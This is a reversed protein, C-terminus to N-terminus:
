QGKVISLSVLNVDVGVDCDLNATGANNVVIHLGNFRRKLNHFADTYLIICNNIVKETSNGCYFLTCFCQHLFISKM